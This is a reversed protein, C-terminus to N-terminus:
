SWNVEITAPSLAALKRRLMWTGNENSIGDGKLTAGAPIGMLKFDIAQALDVPDSTLNFASLVAAKRADLVHGHLMRDLGVFRGEAFFPKLRLYERMAACHSEWNKHGPKVGGLGLHRCTSAYWWFALATVNDFHLNIHLYAPIDYALNYEYLSLAKGSLLDM